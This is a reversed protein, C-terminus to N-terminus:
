NENGNKEVGKELEEKCKKAQEIVTKCEHLKKIIELKEIENDENKKLKNILDNMKITIRGIIFNQIQIYTNKM